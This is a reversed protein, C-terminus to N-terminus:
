VRVYFIQTTHKNYLREEEFYSFMKNSAKSLKPLINKGSSVDRYVSPYSLQTETEWINNNGDWVGVLSSFLGIM